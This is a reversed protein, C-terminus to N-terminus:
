CNSNLLDQQSQRVIVVIPALNSSNRWAPTIEEDPFLTKINDIYFEDSNMGVSLARQIYAPVEKVAMENDEYVRVNTIKSEGDSFDYVKKDVMVFRPKWLKGEVRLTPNFDLGSFNFGFADQDNTWELQLTCSHLLKISFCYSQYTLVGDTFEIYYCGQELGTWDIQYQIYNGNTTIGTTDSMQFVVDGSLNKISYTPVLNVEVDDICGDFVGAGYLGPNIILSTFTAKAVFEYDGDETIVPSDLLSSFSLNGQTTGSVTIKIYYFQGVVMVSEQTLAFGATATNYCARGDSWIWENAM